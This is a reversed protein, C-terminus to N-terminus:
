RLERADLFGDEWAAPWAERAEDLLPAARERRGAARLAAGRLGRATLQAAPSVGAEVSLLADTKDLYALARQPSGFEIEHRALTLFAYPNNPDVQIAREYRSIASQPHRRVDDDLGRLVLRMSARRAADGDHAVDRIHFPEGQLGIGTACGLSLVLIWVIGLAYRTLPGAM